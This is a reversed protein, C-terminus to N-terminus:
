AKPVLALFAKLASVVTDDWGQPTKEALKQMEAILDIQANVALVIKLDPTVDVSAFGFDGLKTELEKGELM